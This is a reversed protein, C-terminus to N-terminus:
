DYAICIRLECSDWSRTSARCATFIVWVQLQTDDIQRCLMDLRQVSCVQAAYPAIVGIDGSIDPDSTLREVINLVLNAEHRNRWSYGESTTEEEGDVSDVFCLPKLPNPLRLRRFWVM